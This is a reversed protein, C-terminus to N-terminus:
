DDNYLSIMVDDGQQELIFYSTSDGLNDSIGLGSPLNTIEGPDLSVMVVESNPQRPVDRNVMESVRALLVKTESDYACPELIMGIQTSNVNGTVRVVDGKILSELTVRGVEEDSFQEPLATVTFTRWGPLSGGGAGGEIQVYLPNDSSSGRELDITRTTQAESSFSFGALLAAALRSMSALEGQFSGPYAQNVPTVVNGEDLIGDVAQISAGTLASEVYACRGSFYGAHYDGSEDIAQAPRREVTFWCAEAWGTNPETLEPESGDEILIQGELLIAGAGAPVEIFRAGTVSVGQTSTAYECVIQDDGPVGGDGYDVQVPIAVDVQISKVVGTFTVRRGEQHAPSIAGNVSRENSDAWEWSPFDRTSKNTALGNIILAKGDWIACDDVNIRRKWPLTGIYM